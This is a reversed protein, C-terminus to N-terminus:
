SYVGILFVGLLAILISKSTAIITLDNKTMQKLRNFPAADFINFYIIFNLVDLTYHDVYECDLLLVDMLLLNCEM